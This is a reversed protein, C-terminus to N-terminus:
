KKKKKKAKSTPAATSNAAQADTKEKQQGSLSAIAKALEAAVDGASSSSSTPGAAGGAAPAAAAPATTPAAGSVQPKAATQPKEKEKKDKEKEKDEGGADKEKEKEKEKSKASASASTAASEKEKEKDSKAEAERRKKNAAYVAADFIHRMDYADEGDAYYKAEIDHIEFGLTQTYLHFAATNSKRVHLSCYEAGFVEKQVKQTANMLKTAIGLKRHSRLVALSTIHGHPEKADEEMKALVYGVIKGNDEAVYLLQPWSCIHYLYYRLQYNEPLCQLNCHQMAPLDELRAQRISVM